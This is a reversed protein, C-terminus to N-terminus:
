LNKIKSRNKQGTKINKKAMEFFDPVSQGFFIKLGFDLKECAFTSIFALFYVWKASFVWSFDLYHLFFFKLGSKSQTKEVFHTYKKAKM